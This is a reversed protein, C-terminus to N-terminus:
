LAVMLLSAVFVGFFYHWSQDLAAAGTGLCPNDTIVIDDPVGKVLATGHLHHVQASRPAGLKLFPAKFPLARALKFMLGYERRDAEFHTIGSVALAISAGRVSPMYGTVLVVAVVMAWQTALYSMVHLVCQLAGDMGVDGKHRAQHDTQVWYDGVHHGVYMAIAIAAFEGTM